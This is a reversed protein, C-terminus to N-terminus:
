DTPESAPAQPKQKRRRGSKPHSQLLPLVALELRARLLDRERELEAVHEQLAEVDEPSVAADRRPRGGPRPQVGELAALLVKRRLNAFQTPGLDLEDCAEDVLMEGSITALVVKLRFKDEPDGPLRDVHELGLNPRAM